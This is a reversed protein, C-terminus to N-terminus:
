MLILAIINNLGNAFILMTNSRTYREEKKIFEMLKFETEDHPTFDVHGGESPWVDTDLVCLPFLCFNACIRDVM